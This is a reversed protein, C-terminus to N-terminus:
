SIVYINDVSEGVFLYLNYKRPLKTQLLSVKIKKMGENGVINEETNM